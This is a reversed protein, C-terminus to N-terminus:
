PRFGSINERQIGCPGTLEDPPLVDASASEGAITRVIWRANALPHLPTSRGTLVRDVVPQRTAACNGHAQRGAVSSPERGQTLNGVGVDVIRRGNRRNGSYQEDTALVPAQM